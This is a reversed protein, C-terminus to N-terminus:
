GSSRRPGTEASGMEQLMAEFVVTAVHRDAIVGARIRVTTIRETRKTVRVSLRRGRDDESLMYVYGDRATTRVPTFALDDLTATAATVVEDFDHDLAGRLEGRVVYASGAEAASFGLTLAAAPPAVCGSMGVGGVGAASITAVRLFRGFKM